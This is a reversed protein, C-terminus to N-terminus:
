ARVDHLGHDDGAAVPTDSTGDGVRKRHLASAHHNEGPVGFLAARGDICEGALTVRKDHAVKGVTGPHGPGGLREEVGGGAEVHEDV